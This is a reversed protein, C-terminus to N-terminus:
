QSVQKSRSTQFPFLSELQETGLTINLRMKELHTNDDYCFWGERDEHHNMQFLVGLSLRAHRTALNPASAICSRSEAASAELKEAPPGLRGKIYYTYTPRVRSKLPM